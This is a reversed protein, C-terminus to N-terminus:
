LCRGDGRVRLRGSITLRAARAGHQAPHHHGARGGPAFPHARHAFVEVRVLDRLMRRQRLEKVWVCACVVGMLLMHTVAMVPMDDIM